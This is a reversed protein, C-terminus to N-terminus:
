RFTFVLSGGCRALDTALHVPRFSGATNLMEVFPMVAWSWCGENLSMISSIGGLPLTDFKSRDVPATLQSRQLRLLKEMRSLKFTISNSAVSVRLQKFTFTFIRAFVKNESTTSSEDKTVGILQVMSEIFVQAAVCVVTLIRM